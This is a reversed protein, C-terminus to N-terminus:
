TGSDHGTVAALASEMAFRREHLARGVIVGVLGPVAAEALRRLHELTGVGGSAIVPLGGQEALRVTESINPGTEMGDREIDTYLVAALPLRALRQVAELASVTSQEQWAHTAIQGNRADVAVVIRGPYTEAAQEVLEPEDLAATGLVVREVGTDLYRSIAELTRLGGGVQVGPGFAMAIATVLDVQSPQGTRAGELDVLHLRRVSASWQRALTVPNTDYRTLEDYDGRRLRVASGGLLDIAPILEM